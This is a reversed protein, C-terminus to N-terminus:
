TQIRELTKIEEKFKIILNEINKIIQKLKIKANEHADNAFKNKSIKKLKNSNNRQTYRLM